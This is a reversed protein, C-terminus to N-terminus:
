TLYPEDFPSLPVTAARPATKLPNAKNATFIFCQFLNNQEDARNLLAAAFKWKCFFAGRWLL